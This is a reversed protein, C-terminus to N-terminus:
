EGATSPLQVPKIDKIEAIWHGALQTSPDSDALPFHSITVRVSVTKNLYPAERDKHIALSHILLRRSGVMIESLSKGKPFSGSYPQLNGVLEVDRSQGVAITELVPLLEDATTIVQNTACSAILTLSGVLVTSRLISKRSM